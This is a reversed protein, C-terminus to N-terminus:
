RNRYFILRWRSLIHAGLGWRCCPSRSGLGGSPIKRTQWSRSSWCSDQKHVLYFSLCLSLFLALSYCKYWVTYSVEWLNIVVKQMESFHTYTWIVKTGKTRAGCPNAVGKSDVSISPWAASCCCLLHIFVQFHRPYYRQVPLYTEVSNWAQLWMLCNGVTKKLKM